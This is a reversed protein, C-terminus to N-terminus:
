SKCPGDTTVWIGGRCEASQACSCTYDCALGERVCASGNSPKIPPCGQSGDAAVAAVCRWEPPPPHEPM